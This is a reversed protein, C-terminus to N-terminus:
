WRVGKGLPEQPDVNAADFIAPACEPCIDLVRVDHDVPEGDKSGRAEFALTVWGPPFQASSVRFVKRKDTYARHKKAENIGAERVAPLLDRGIADLSFTESRWGDAAAERMWQAQVAYPEEDFALATSSGLRHNADYMAAAVAYQARHRESSDVVDVLSLSLPKATITRKCRVCSQRMDTIVEVTQTTEHDKKVENGDAVNKFDM